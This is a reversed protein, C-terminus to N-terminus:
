ALSTSSKVPLATTLDFLAKYRGDTQWIQSFRRFDLAVPFLPLTVKRANDQAM